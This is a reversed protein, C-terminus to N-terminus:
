RPRVAPPPAGEGLVEVGDPTGSVGISRLVSM